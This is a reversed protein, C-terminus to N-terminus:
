WVVALTASEFRDSSEFQQIAPTPVDTEVGTNNKYVSAITM